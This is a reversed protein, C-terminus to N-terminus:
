VIPALTEEELWVRNAATADELWEQYVVPNDYSDLIYCVVETDAYAIATSIILNQLINWREVSCSQHLKRISQLQYLSPTRLCTKIDEFFEKQTKFSAQM